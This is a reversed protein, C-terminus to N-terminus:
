FNPMQYCGNRSTPHRTVGKLFPRKTYGGDIVIWVSKEAQKLWPVIWEVLRAALTLKTAFRWRRQIPISRKPIATTRDGDSGRVTEIVTSNRGNESKQSPIGRINGASFLIPLRQRRIRLSSTFSTRKRLAFSTSSLSFGEFLRLKRVHVSFKNEV